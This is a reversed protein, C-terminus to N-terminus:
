NNLKAGKRGREVEDTLKKKLREIHEIKWKKENFMAFGNPPPHLSHLSYFFSKEM